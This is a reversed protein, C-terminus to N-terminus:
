DDLYTERLVNAIEEFTMSDYIDDEGDNMSVLDPRVPGPFFYDYITSTVGHWRRGNIRLILVSQNRDPDLIEWKALEPHDQRWLEAMVGEACFCQERCQSGNDKMMSLSGFIQQYKGSELAEILKLLQTNSMKDGRSRRKFAQKLNTRIKM